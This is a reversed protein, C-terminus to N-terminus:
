RSQVRTPSSSLRGRALVLLTYLIQPVIVVLHFILACALALENGIGLSRTLYAVVGAEFVGLGAPATPITMALAKILLIFIADGVGFGLGPLFQAFAVYVVAVNLLWILLTYGCIQPLYRVREQERLAEILARASPVGALWREARHSFKRFLLACAYAVIILGFLVAATGRAIPGGDVFFLVAVVLGALVILDFFKEVLGAAFVRAASLSYIRQVYYLKALEGLRFPLIANLGTGLNIVRFSTGFPVGILLALRLGYCAFAALNVLFALLVASLPLRRFSDLLVQPQIHEVCWAILYYFIILNVAGIAVNKLVQAARNRM